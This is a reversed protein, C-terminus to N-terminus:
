KRDGKIIEDLKDNIKQHDERNEKRVTEIFVNMETRVKEINQSNTIKGEELTKIRGEHGEVKINFNVWTAIIVGLLTLTSLKQEYTMGIKENIKQLM